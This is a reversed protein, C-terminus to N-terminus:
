ANSIVFSAGCMQGNDCWRHPVDCWPNLKKVFFWQSTDDTSNALANRKVLLVISGSLKVTGRMLTLSKKKLYFLQLNNVWNVIFLSNSLIKVCLITALIIINKNVNKENNSCFSNNWSSIKGGVRMVHIGVNDASSHNLQWSLFTLFILKCGSPISHQLNEKQWM